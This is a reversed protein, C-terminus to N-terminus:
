GWRRYVRHWHNNLRDEIAWDMAYAFAWLFYIFNLYHKIYWKM